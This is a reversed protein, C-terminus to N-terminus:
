AAKTEICSKGSDFQYLVGHTKKAVKFRMLPFEIITDVNIDGMVSIRAEHIPIMRTQLVQSRERAAQLQVDLRPIQDLLLDIESRKPPPLQSYSKTRPGLRQEVERVDNLKQKM